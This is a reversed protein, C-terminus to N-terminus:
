GRRAAAAAAPALYRGSRSWAHEIEANGEVVFVPALAAGNEHVPRLREHAERHQLGLAIARGAEVGGTEDRAVAARRPRREIELEPARPLEQLRERDLELGAEVFVDGGGRDPARLLEVEIRLRFVVADEGHPVALRRAHVAGAVGDLVGVVGARGLV